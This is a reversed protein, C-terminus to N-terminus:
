MSLNVFAGVEEKCANGETQLADVAVGSWRATFQKKWIKWGMLTPPGSHSKILPLWDSPEM